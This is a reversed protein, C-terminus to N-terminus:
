KRYFAFAIVAFLGATFLFGGIGFVASMFTILLLAILGVVLRVFIMMYRLTLNNLGKWVRSNTM